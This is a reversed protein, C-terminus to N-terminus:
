IRCPLSKLVILVIFFYPTLPKELVCPVAKKRIYGLWFALPIIIIGVVHELIVAIKSVYQVIKEGILTILDLSM